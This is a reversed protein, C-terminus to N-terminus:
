PGTGVMFLESMITFRLICNSNDILCGSWLETTCITNDMIRVKDKYRAWYYIGGYYM